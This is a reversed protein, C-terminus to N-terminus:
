TSLNKNKVNYNKGWGVNKLCFKYKKSNNLYIQYLFFIKLLFKIRDLM